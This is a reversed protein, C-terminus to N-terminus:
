DRGHRRFYAKDASTVLSAEKLTAYPSGSFQNNLLGGLRNSHYDRSTVDRPEKGLKRVLWNVAKIRNAKSKYFKHPTQIMEWPHFAYGADTLAAYPSGHYINILLGGLGNSLFDKATMDKPDKKLVKEV